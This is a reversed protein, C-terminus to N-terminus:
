PTTLVQQLAPCNSSPSTCAGGITFVTFYYAKARWLRWVHGATLITFVAVTVIAGWLSPDYRYLQFDFESPVETGPPLEGNSSM